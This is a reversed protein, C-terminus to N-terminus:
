KATARSPRLGADGDGGGPEGAIGLDAGGVRRSDPRSVGGVPQYLRSARDPPRVEGATAYRNSRWNPELREHTCMTVGAPNRARPPVNRGSTSGHPTPTCM